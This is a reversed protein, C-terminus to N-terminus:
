APAAAAHLHWTAHKEVALQGVQQALQHLYTESLSVGHSKALDQVVESYFDLSSRVFHSNEENDPQDEQGLPRRLWCSRRPWPVRTWSRRCPPADMVGGVKPCGGQMTSPSGATWTPTGTPWRRIFRRAFRSATSSM